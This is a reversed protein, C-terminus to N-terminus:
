KDVWAAGTALIAQWRQELIRQYQPCLSTSQYRTLVFPAYPVGINITPEGDIVVGKISALLLGSRVLDVGPPFSNGQEDLGAQIQEKFTLALADAMLQLVPAPISIM